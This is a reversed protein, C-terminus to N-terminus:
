LLDLERARAVAQSRNRVGLKTYINATHAKATGLAIVLTEAIERNTLGAAILRLVELERESLLILSSPRAVFSSCRESAEDKTRQRAFRDEKFATLLRAVYDPTIGQSLARDLLQAMPPGGDVFTRVYGQPEALSLARELAALAPAIHGQAQLALARLALIEIVKPVIGGAEVAQLRRELLGTAEELAGDGPRRKGQAILLRALALHEDERVNTLEGDTSLGREQLLQAAAELRGPDTESQAIWIRAKWAVTPSSVWVPVDSERALKELKRITEQAAPWDRRAFLVRVLCVYSVGLLVVNNDRECLEVGKEAHQLAEDLDNWECLTASWLAYLVGARGTQAFGSESALQLQEQCLEVCRGLQGQLGENTILKAGAMLVFYTNGAAKSMRVAESLARNAAALDGSWSLADGLTMAASGRWMFNDAPLHELARRSCQIMAPADGQFLAFFARVAAMMGQQEAKTEDSMSDLAREAAQLRLEAAELQGTMFLVFAHYICLRPRSRVLEDPLAEMWNSLTIQAGGGWLSEAHEDILCAVRELDGASVAHEIALSILGSHEYWASARNHLTPMFDAQTRRLRQRLLDAFLRHYRYWRREDDLPVIFLNAREISELTAQGDDRGTIANCLPSTLRELIATQLLFTQVSDPQRQLVEEVLYDLIYRNSGTFAQIFDATQRADRGQVSVAAVQLGAIWGETRSALAAVDDAALDLGMAQDLFAAIEDLTFRLHALRLETLQGRGRLRALPLPPDSRTAIVLHMNGPLHDLTFSLADHIAQATILHYDDLVLCFDHPIAAIENILVTLVADMPPPQPAQFASLADAGIHGALGERTELTQLAAVSYALFRAPDNDGEDLSLWAVPRGCSAAWASLLTTKGFGAPTSVLTLKRGSRPGADLREILRPRSVLGPRTPPIFLKTQLLPTNM